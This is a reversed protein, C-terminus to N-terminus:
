RRRYALPARGRTGTAKATGAELVSGQEVLDDIVKRVTAESAGSAEAVSRVTFEGSDPVHALISQSSTRPRRTRGEPPAAPALTKTVLKGPKGDGLLGAAKLDAKAVNMHRFAEASIDNAAAWAKAHQVFRERIAREDVSRVKELESYAKLRALPDESREALAELETIRALDVLSTPDNVWRLYQRIADDAEQSM